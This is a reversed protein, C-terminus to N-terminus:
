AGVIDAIEAASLAKGFFRRYFLMTENTLDLDRFKEPHLLRALWLVGLPQEPTYHTWIHAGHPVGHVQRNRIAPLNALRSDALITAREEGFALLLVEPQWALLQELTFAYTDLRLPNDDATVSNGGARAILHNAPVMIPQTLTSYRLYLVRPRRPTPGLRRAVDGLLASSWDFYDHARAPLGFIEALLRVTQEISDNREWKLVIAPLGARDLLKAAVESVVFSLDPRIALLSEVNPTWAPPPGSVVPADAIGPAFRQQFKWLPSRFAQPLGTVIKDAQGYLFLFANVAPSGGASAIREIRPPLRVHRGALDVVQREAAQLGALPALMLSGLGTTLRRRRADM